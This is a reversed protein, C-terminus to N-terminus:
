FSRFIQERLNWCSYQDCLLTLVECRGRDNKVSAMAWRLTCPRIKQLVWFRTIKRGHADVARLTWHWQKWPLLFIAVSLAEVFSSVFNELSTRTSREFEFASWLGSPLLLKGAPLTWWLKAEKCASFPNTLERAWTYVKYARYLSAGSLSWAFPPLTPPLVKPITFERLVDTMHFAGELKTGITRNACGAHSNLHVFGRKVMESLSQRIKQLGIRSQGPDTPLVSRKKEEMNCENSILSTVQATKYSRIVQYVVTSGCNLQSHFAYTRDIWKM